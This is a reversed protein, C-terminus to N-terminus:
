NNKRRDKVKEVTGDPRKIVTNELTAGFSRRIEGLYEAYLAQQEDLETKSLGEKKKKKALLGIRELKEKEM